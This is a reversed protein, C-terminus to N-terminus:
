PPHCPAPSTPLAVHMDTLVWCVQVASCGACCFGTGSSWLVAEGRGRNGQLLLLPFAGLIRVQYTRLAALKEQPSVQAQPFHDQSGAQPFTRQFFPKHAPSSSVSTPLHTIRPHRPPLSSHAGMEPPLRGQGHPFLPKQSLEPNEKVM